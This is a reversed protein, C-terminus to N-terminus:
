IRPLDLQIDLLNCIPFPLFSLVYAFRLFVYKLIAIEPSCGCFRLLTALNLYSFVALVEEQAVCKITV